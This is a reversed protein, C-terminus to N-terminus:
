RSKFGDEYFLIFYNCASRNNCTSRFQVDRVHVPAQLDLTKYFHLDVRAGACIYILIKCM